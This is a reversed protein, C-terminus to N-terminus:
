LIASKQGEKFKKYYELSCPEGDYFYGNYEKKAM